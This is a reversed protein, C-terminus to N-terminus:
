KQRLGSFISRIEDDSVRDSSTSWGANHDDDFYSRREAAALEEQRKRIEYAVHIPPVDYHDLMEKLEAEFSALEDFSRIDRLPERLQDVFGGLGERLADMAADPDTGHEMLNAAVQKFDDLTLESGRESLLTAVASTLAEKAGQQADLPLLTLVLMEFDRAARPVEYSEIGQNRLATTADRVFDLVTETQLHDYMDVALEL